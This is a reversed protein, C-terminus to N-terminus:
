LHVQTVSNMRKMHKKRDFLPILLNSNEDRKFRRRGDFPVRSLEPVVPGPTPPASGQIVNGLVSHQPWCRSRPSWPNRPRHKRRGECLSVLRLGDRTRCASAELPMQLPRSSPDARPSAAGGLGAGLEGSVYKSPLSMRSMVALSVSAFSPPSARPAPVVQNTLFVYIRESSWSVYMGWTYQDQDM